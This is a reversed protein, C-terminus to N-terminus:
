RRVSVAERWAAAIVFVTSLAHGLVFAFAAGIVGFQNLLPILAVAVVMASLAFAIFVGRTQGIARLYIIGLERAFVLLPVVAFITVLNDFATFAPGLLVALLADEFIAVTACFATLPLVGVLFVRRLYTAAGPRGGSHLAEGTRRPVFNELSMMLVLAPGFLIQASRLGAAAWEGLMTGAAITVVQEHSTSVVVMLVMWRGARWHRALMAASLGKRVRSRFPSRLLFPLTAAFPALGLCLLLTATDVGAVASVVLAAAVFIVQRLVEISLAVRPQATVFLIRKAGDHLVVGCALVLGAFALDYRGRAFGWGYLTLVYAAVAVGSLFSVAILLRVIVTYYARHRPRGSASMMPSAVLQYQLAGVMAMGTFILVFAGFEEIGLARAAFISVLFSMGSALAQSAVSYTAEHKPIRSLRQLLSVGQESPPAVGAAVAPPQVSM